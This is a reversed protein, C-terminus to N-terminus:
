LFHLSLAQFILLLSFVISRTRSCWSPSFFYCIHWRWSLALIVVFVVLLPVKPFLSRLQFIGFAACALIRLKFSDPVLIFIWVLHSEFSGVWLVHFKVILEVEQLRFYWFHFIIQLSFLLFLQFLFFFVLLLFILLFLLLLYLFLFWTNSEIVQYSLNRFSFLEVCKLFIRIRGPM